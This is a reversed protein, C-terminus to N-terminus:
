RTRTRTRPDLYRGAHVEAQALDGRAVADAFRHSLPRRAFRESVMRALLLLLASLVILAM